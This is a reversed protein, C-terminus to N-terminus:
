HPTNQAEVFSLEARNTVGHIKLGSPDIPTEGPITPWAAM